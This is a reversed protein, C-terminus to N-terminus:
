SGKITFLCIFKIYKETTQQKRIGTMKVCFCILIDIKETVNVYAEVPIM